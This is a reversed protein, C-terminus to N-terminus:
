FLVGLTFGGTLVIPFETGGYTHSYQYDEDGSDYGYISNNKGTSHIGYGFGAYYEFTMVNGLIYQKGFVIDIAFNTKQTRTPVPNSYTYNDYDDISYTNFIFEPKIYFGKLAHIFKLGNHLYESRSTLFKVGGKVWFGSANREDNIFGPGIVAMKIELNTGVKIMKEYGFAIDNGLPSFFEFKISHTKNRVAVEKNADYPDPTNFYKTGNKYTIEIVDSKAIVYVPGDLNNFYIYKIEDLGIELVKAQITDKKTRIIDQAQISITFFLFIFLFRLRFKTM